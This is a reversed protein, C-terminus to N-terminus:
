LFSLANKTSANAHALVALGAEKQMMSATKNATEAAFDADQMSSKAAAVNEIRTRLESEAHGLRNMKSGIESRTQQLGKIVNDMVTISKSADEASSTSLKDLSEQHRSDQISVNLKNHAAPGVQFSKSTFSGDLLKDGSFNTDKAVKKFESVLDSTAKEINSRDEASITDDSAQVMKERIQQALDTMKGLAGDATELMSGASSMNTLAQGAGELEGRMFESKLLAVVDDAGSEVKKGSSLHDMAKSLKADTKKVEKQSKLSMLNSNIRM